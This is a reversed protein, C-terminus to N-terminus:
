RTSRTIVSCQVSGLNCADSKTMEIQIASDKMGGNDSCHPQPSQSGHACDLSLWELQKLGKHVPWDSNTCLIGELGGHM